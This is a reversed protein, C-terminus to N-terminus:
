KSKRLQKVYDFWMNASAMDVNYGDIFYGRNTKEMSGLVQKNGRFKKYYKEAPRITKNSVVSYIGYLKGDKFFIEKAM